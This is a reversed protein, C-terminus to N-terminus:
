TARCQGLSNRAQPHARREFCRYECVLSCIHCTSLSCNLMRSWICTQRSVDVLAQNGAKETAKIYVHPVPSHRCHQPSLLAPDPLLLSHFPLTSGPPFGLEDRWEEQGPQCKCCQQPVGCRERSVHLTIQLLWRDFCPQLLKDPNSSNNGYINQQGGSTTFVARM